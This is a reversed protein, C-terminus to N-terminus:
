PGEVAESAQLALAREILEWGLELATDADLGVAIEGTGPDLVVVGVEEDTEVSLEGRQDM